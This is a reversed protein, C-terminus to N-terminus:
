IDEEHVAKAGEGAELIDSEPILLLTMLKRALDPSLIKLAIKRSM